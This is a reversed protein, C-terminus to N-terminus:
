VEKLASFPIVKFHNRSTDVQTRLYTEGGIVVVQSFAIVRGKKLREDIKRLTVPDIKYLDKTLKLSRPTQMPRFTVPIPTTNDLPIVTTKSRETDHATRLYTTGGLTIAGQFYVQQNTAVAEEPAAAIGTSLDLKQTDSLIKYARQSALTGFDSSTIARFDALPIGTYEGDSPPSALVYQTSNHTVITNFFLKTNAVIVPSTSSAPHRLDLIRTNTKAIFWRPRQLSGYSPTTDVLNDGFVMGTQASSNTDAQTRLYVSDGMQIKTSFYLSTGQPIISGTRKNTLPDVKHMDNALKMWRPAQLSTYEIPIEELVDVSIGKNIWRESDHQTRLYTTGNITVKDRFFIQTGKTLTGDVPTSATLSQKRANQKLQMWRPKDLSTYKISSRTPGFWDTFLNYFNRNGYAGCHATGWGAALAAKNPQYPTYRYLASTARNKIDVTSGGCSASPNYQVYRKGVPYNSWGGNLVERFMAAAKRVQNKLGYYQADCPATDPCGYGTAGRYQINNPFTDRILSQEKELLVILVQPNIKYDQAARYIIRAASEGGFTDAHMCVFKGNKLTYTYTYPKGALTSKYYGKTATYSSLWALNSNNCANKSKLFSQIKAESMTKYNGMVSDSMINGASWGALTARASPVPVATLALVLSLTSATFLKITLKM